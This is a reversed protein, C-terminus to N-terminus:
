QESDFDELKSRRRPKAVFRWKEEKMKIGQSFLVNKFCSKAVSQSLHLRNEILCHMNDAPVIVKIRLNTDVWLLGWGEALEHPEVAGEPVCLYSQDSIRSKKISEFQTGKYLAKEIRRIKRILTHYEMNSTDDYNWDAYEEFLADGRKLHPENERIKRRVDNMADRLSRLQPSLEKSNSCDPWCDDRCTRCEIVVSKNPFLVRKPGVAASNRMTGFWIAATDAKFRSVKTPVEMALADAGQQALWALAARRLLRRTFRLASIEENTGESVTIVEDRDGFNFEYQNSM